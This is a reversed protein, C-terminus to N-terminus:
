RLNRRHVLVLALLVVVHQEIEVHKPPLLQKAVAVLQLGRELSHLQAAAATPEPPQGTINGQYVM